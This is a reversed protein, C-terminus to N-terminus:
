PAQNKDIADEGKGLSYGSTQTSSDHNHLLTNKTYPYGGNVGGGYGTFDTYDNHGANQSGQGGGGGAVM